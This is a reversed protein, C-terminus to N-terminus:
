LEKRVRAVIEDIPQTNNFHTIYKGEKNMYYIFSSHDVLYDEPYEHNEVKKYFVKYAKAAIEIEEKTGTLYMIKDSFNTSNENLQEVTDREPDVTIFIVNLKNMEEGLLNIVQNLRGLDTPCIDPCYTFGFYVLLNKGHFDKDSVRIGKHNTLAFSGGIAAEGGAIEYRDAHNKGSLQQYGLVGLLIAVGAWLVM